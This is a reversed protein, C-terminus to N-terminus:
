RTRFNVTLSPVSKPTLRIGSLYIGIYSVILALTLIIYATSTLLHPYFVMHGCWLLCIVAFPLAWHKRWHWLIAPLPNFPIILWSWETCVLSSFLVLYVTVLGLITQISLLVYDMTHWHFVVCIVTLILLLISVMLPTIFPTKHVQVVPLLETPSEDMIKVGNVSAESLIAVLDAPM